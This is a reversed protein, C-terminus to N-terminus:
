PQAGMNRQRRATIGTTGAPASRNERSDGRMPNDDPRNPVDAAHSELRLDDTAALLTGTRGRVLLLGAM